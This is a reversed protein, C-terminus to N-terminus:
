VGKYWRWDDCELEGHKLILYQFNRNLNESSFWNNANNQSGHERHTWVSRPEYIVEGNLRNVSVCYSVDEFVGMGFRTDFGGVKDWWKRTTMLCGGTVASVVRRVNAAPSNAPMNAMIHYPYQDSGIAVGAHQIREPRYQDDKPYLLLAGCVAAGDDLNNAMYEICHSHYAETDSNLILFYDHEAKKCGRNVSKVFGENGRNEFYRVDGISKLVTTDEESSDDNIIIIEGLRVQNRLSDALRLVLNSRGHVPIIVSVLPLAM